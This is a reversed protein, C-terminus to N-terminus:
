KENNGGNNRQANSSAGSVGSTPMAVSMTAMTTVPMTVMMVTVMMMPVPAMTMTM